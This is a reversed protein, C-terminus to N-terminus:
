LVSATVSFVANIKLQVDQTTAQRTVAKIKLKFSSSKVYESLDVSSPTLSLQTLGMPLNDNYAVEVEPLSSTLIFIHISKLFDFTGDKPSSVALQLSTLYTERVQSASVGQNKFSQESNTAIDPTPIPQLPTNIPVASPVTISTQYPLSFTITGIDHKCSFSGVVIGLLLAFGLTLPVFAKMKM